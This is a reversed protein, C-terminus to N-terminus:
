SAYNLTLVIYIQTNVFHKFLSVKSSDSINQFVYGSWMEKVINIQEKTHYVNFGTKNLRLIDSTQKMLGRCNVIVHREGGSIQSFYGFYDYNNDPMQFNILSTDSIVNPYIEFDSISGSRTSIKAHFFYHHDNTGFIGNLNNSIDNYRM